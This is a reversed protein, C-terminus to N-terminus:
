APKVAEVIRTVYSRSPTPSHMNAFGADRLAAEIESASRTRGTRMALTYLSFYTDTARDPRAGGSMPESVIIRGEPPLARYAKKLLQAVTEDSHDYLVRILSIADAGQPLEDEKFSGESITARDTFGAASFRTQADSAVVPLDFLHLNISDYSRGVAELFAGTGGGVDLLIKVDDLRVRQLTDDAVLVQSEAMLDSYSRATAPPIAESKSFVYPWVDALETEIENRFFAVPDSLDRYFAQHHRVMATLGPVTAFAAGRQTLSVRNGRLKLLGLAAGGQILVRMRDRPVSAEYALDSVDRAGALLAEPIRLEALAM